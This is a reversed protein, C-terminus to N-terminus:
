KGTAQAMAVAKLPREGLKNNYKECALCNPPRKCVSFFTLALKEAEFLRQEGRPERMNVVWTKLRWPLVSEHREKMATGHGSVSFPYFLVGRRSGETRGHSNEERNRYTHTHTYFYRRWARLVSRSCRDCCSFCRLNSRGGLAETVKFPWGPKRQGHGRCPRIDHRILSSPRYIPPDSHEQQWTVKDNGEKQQIQVCYFLMQFPSQQSILSRVFTMDNNANTTCAYWFHRMIALCM